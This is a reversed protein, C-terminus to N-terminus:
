CGPLFCLDQSVEVAPGAKVVGSVVAGVNRDKLGCSCCDDNRGIERGFAVLLVIAGLAKSRARDADISYELHQTNMLPEFVEKDKRRGDKGM